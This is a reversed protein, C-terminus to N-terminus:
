LIPMKQEEETELYWLVADAAEEKPVRRLLARIDRDAALLKDHRVMVWQGRYQEGHEAIWAWEQSHDRVPHASKRVRSGVLTQSM